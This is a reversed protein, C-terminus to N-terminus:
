HEHFSLRCRYIFPLTKSKKKQRIRVFLYPTLVNQILEQIKPSNIHQTTQSDWHFYDGEFFDDFHFRTEKDAKELDVFLLYSASGRCSFVGERVSQLTPENLLSSLEKKSYQQGVQLITEPEM